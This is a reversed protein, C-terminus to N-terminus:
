QNPEKLKLDRVADSMGFEFEEQTSTLAIAEPPQEYSDQRMRMLIVDRVFHAMEEPTGEGLQFRVPIAGAAWLGSFPDGQRTVPARIEGTPELADLVQGFAQKIARFSWPHSRWNPGVTNSAVASIVEALLYCLARSPPDRREDRERELSRHLRRLIEQTLSWGEGRRRKAASRELQARLDAPMRLSLTTSLGAYEGRPKTGGGPARKRAM